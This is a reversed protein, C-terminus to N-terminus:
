ATGIVGLVVSFIMVALALRQLTIVGIIKNRMSPETPLGHGFLVDGLSRQVADLERSEENVHFTHQTERLVKQIFITTLVIHRNYINAVFHM